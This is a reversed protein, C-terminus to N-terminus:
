TTDTTQGTYFVTTQNAATQATQADTGAEIAAQGWANSSATLMAKGDPSFAFENPDPRQFNPDTIYLALGLLGMEWGVGTAGPGYTDWHESIYTTHTLTLRVHGPIENDLDVDVWSIDGAFECTLAFHSQPECQTISGSANHELQFRGNLELVGTIPTFWLPIRDPDTVADWLDEVTTAFTRSLTVSSAPQEDREFFSVSRDVANLHTQPNFNM